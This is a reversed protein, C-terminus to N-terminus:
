SSSGSLNHSTSLFDGLVENFEHPREMNALHGVGELEVYTSGRVFTAMKAMTKAPANNDRSGSLLLTPVKIDALNKRLDFGIMAQMSSRYTEPKVSSMCDRALAVGAASPEDGILDQVLKPAMSQMTEGRDLPGVRVEIFNKQWEGDSSGFASTTQALIVASALDPYKVLLQQVIM